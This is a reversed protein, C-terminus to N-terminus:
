LQRPLDREARRGPRRQGSPSRRASRAPPSPSRAAPPRRLRQRGQRHRETTSFNVTTIQDTPGSRTVTFVANVTGTNGETVTVDSISISPPLSTGFSLLFSSTVGNHTGRGVIQGADNIATAESITWGLSPDLSSNLDISTGGQWLSSGYGVVQSNNNITM